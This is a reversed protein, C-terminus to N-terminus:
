DVFGKARLFEWIRDLSTCSGTGSAVAAGEPPLPNRVIEYFLTACDPDYATDATFSLIDSAPDFAAPIEAARGGTPSLRYITVNSGPDAALLLSIEARGRRLLAPTSGMKQWIHAEPGDFVAGTNRADTVHAVLIRQSTALPAGDISSAWIAAASQAEGSDAIDFRLPGCELAGSEAFGGCTRETVVSFTGDARNPAAGRSKVEAPAAAARDAGGNRLATGVRCEWPSVGPLAEGLRMAGGKGPAGVQAMDWERARETEAPLPAMDGRLYLAITAYESARQVPDSHMDFYRMPLSGPAEVGEHNHSWAFRWIGSWDQLAALAGVVLGSASRSGMPAAWNWETICSPKGFIRRWVAGPVEQGSAFPNGGTIASPFRWQRGVFVPHEVYFHNDIYDFSSLPRLYQEPYYWGSLSSLPAKCGLEDRVVAAVRDFLRQESDALFRAFAAVDKRRGSTDYIEDPIPADPKFGFEPHAALWARWAEPVGRTQKLRNIGYNGLNGENVVALTALAPEEALPRGTHPNVHGLFVRTWELLNSTAPEHFAVLTKYDFQSLADGELGLASPLIAKNRSVFIDTTIYLGHRICAAVLADFREWAEPPVALAGPDDKDPKAAGKGCPPTGPSALFPDHHHIRVSNYGMRALNECFRDVSAPDPINANHVINAGCFRIQEGPRGELEFHDGKVVVRGFKGAPEHHPVTASLDLASGPEIWDAGAPPAPYPIWGDSAAMTIETDPALAFAAGPRSFAASVTYEVGEKVDGVAMYLRIHVFSKGWQENDQVLVRTPSPFAIDLSPSGDAGLLRLSSLPKELLRPKPPIGDRIPLTEGDAVVASLEAKAYKAFVCVEAPSGDSEPTAGWSAAIAGEPTAAFSAGCAFALAGDTVNEAAGEGCEIRFATASGIGGHAKWYRDYVMPAFVAGGPLQLRGGFTAACPLPESRGLFSTAVALLTALVTRNLRM